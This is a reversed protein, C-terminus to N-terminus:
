KGLIKRERIIIWLRGRSILHEIQFLLKEARMSKLTTFLDLQNKEIKEYIANLKLGTDTKVSYEDGEEAEPPWLFDLYPYGFIHPIAKGKIWYKVSEGNFWVENEGKGFYEKITIKM